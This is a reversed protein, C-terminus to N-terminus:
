EKVMKPLWRRCFVLYWPTWMNLGFYILFILFSTRTKTQVYRNYCFSSKPHPTSRSLKTTSKLQVHLSDSSSHNIKPKTFPLAITQSISTLLALLITTLGEQKNTILISPSHVDVTRRDRPINPNCHHFTLIWIGNRGVDEQWHSKFKKKEKRKKKKELFTIVVGLNQISRIWRGIM